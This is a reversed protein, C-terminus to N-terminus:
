AKLRTVIDIYFQEEMLYEFPGCCNWQGYPQFEYLLSDILDGDKNFVEILKWQTDKGIDRGYDIEQNGRTWPGRGFFRLGYSGEGFRTSVRVRKSKTTNKNKM